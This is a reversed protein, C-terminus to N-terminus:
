SWSGVGVGVGHMEFSNGREVCGIVRGGRLSAASLQLFASQVALNIEHGDCRSMKFVCDVGVAAVGRPPRM